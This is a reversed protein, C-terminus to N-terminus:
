ISGTYGLKELVNGLRDCIVMDAKVDTYHEKEHIVILQQGGFFKVYNSYVSSSLKTGLLLLVEAKEVETAALSTLHSDLQEGYLTVGPRVVNGCAQCRPAKKSDRIYEMSYEHGCKPCRNQYISGRLSLVHQCGARKEFDFMNDTLICQIKGADEMKKLAYCSEPIEWNKKLVEAKYFTFFADPRTMYYVSSFIDEPSRGYKQEIEYAYDQDHFTRCGSEALIGSGCLAVTYKSEDLVTKLYNIKEGM